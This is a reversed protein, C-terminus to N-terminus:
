QAMVGALPNGTAGVDFLCQAYAATSASLGACATTAQDMTVGNRLPASDFSIPVWGAPEVPSTTFPSPVLSTRKRSGIGGTKLGQGWGQILAADDDGRGNLDGCLGLVTGPVFNQSQTKILVTAGAIWPRLNVIFDAPLSLADTCNIIIHDNKGSITVGSLPNALAGVFVSDFGSESPYDAFKSVGDLLYQVTNNGNNVSILFELNYGAIKIALGRICAASTDGDHCAEHRQSIIINPSSAKDAFLLWDGSEDTDISAGDFTTIHPEGYSNCIVRRRPAPPRPVYGPTFTVLPLFLSFSFAL